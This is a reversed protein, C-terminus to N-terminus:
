DGPAQMEPAQLLRPITDIQSTVKIEKDTAAIPMDKLRRASVLVRSELTSVMKNYKEVATGLSSGVAVFHDTMVSVREYLEKGLDGIKEADQALREQRWGYAVAKLLAILTTPTALIVRQNAGAEILAPDADLAASYFSEGPLFMFVFEPTPKFQDWYIKSSLASMHGRIQIAYEALHLKKTADDPTEMALLYRDFPSKADIVITGGGPLRVILDPRLRGESTTVSQQELFDCQDIMGALEVVRRLQIEGWRGRIRPSKLSQVLSATETRLEKQSEFLSNVQTKLGEYAGLRAKEIEQVHSEFRDLTEKVPKVLGEIAKERTQLEAVASEQQRKLREEALALFSENNERLAEGAISSFTNKIFTVQDSHQRREGELTTALETIKQKSQAWGFYWGAVGTAGAIVIVLVILVISEM